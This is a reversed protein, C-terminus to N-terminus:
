PCCSRRINLTDGVCICLLSGRHCLDMHQIFVRCLQDRCAFHHLPRRRHDLFKQLVGDICARRLDGKGDLGAADFENLDAVVAAADLCGIDGRGEDAMGGALDARFFVQVVDVRQPEAAFRQGGNGAHGPHLQQGAGGLRLAGAAVMDLAPFLVGNLRPGPAHAGGDPHPVEEEVSRGPHFEQFFIGALAGKHGIDHGVHGHAVRLHADLEDPLALQLIDGGPIPLQAARGVGNQAPLEAAVKHLHVVALADVTDAAEDGLGPAATGAAAHLVKIDIATVDAVAGHHRAHFHGILAGHHLALERSSDQKQLHGGIQHVDIDVRGFGLHAKGPFVINKVEDVM